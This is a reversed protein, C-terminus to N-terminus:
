TPWDARVKSCRVEYWRFVSSLVANLEQQIDTKSTIQSHQNSTNFHVCGKLRHETSRHDLWRNVLAETLPDKLDIHQILISCKERSGKACILSTIVIHIVKVSYFGIEM